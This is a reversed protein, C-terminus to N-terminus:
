KMSPSNGSAGPDPFDSIGNARMCEAFKLATRANTATNNAGTGAPASSGCATILAAVAIMALAALPRRKRMM